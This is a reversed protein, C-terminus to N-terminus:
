KHASVETIVSSLTLAAGAHASTFGLTRRSFGDESAYVGSKGPKGSEFPTSRFYVSERSKAQSPHSRLPPHAACEGSAKTLFPEKLSARVVEACLNAYKLYSM